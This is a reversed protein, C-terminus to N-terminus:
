APELEYLVDEDVRLDDPLSVPGDFEVTYDGANRIREPCFNDADLGGPPPKATFVLAQTNRANATYFIARFIM